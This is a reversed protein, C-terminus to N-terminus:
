LVCRETSAGGTACATTAFPNSRLSRYAQPLSHSKISVVRFRDLRIYVTDFDIKVVIASEGCYSVLSGLAPLLNTEVKINTENQSYLM